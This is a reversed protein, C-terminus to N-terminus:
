FLKFYILISFWDINKFCLSVLFYIFLFFSCFQFSPRWLIVSLNKNILWTKFSIIIVTNFIYLETWDSLWTQSKTVGHIVACWAGRDMLLERLKSLSMGMSDTIGDLWTMRQWGRRRRSRIGGLMLTKGLSDVWLYICFYLFVNYVVKHWYIQFTM